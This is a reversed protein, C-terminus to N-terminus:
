RRGILKSKIRRFERTDRVPAPAVELTMAIEDIAAVRRATDPHDNSAASAGAGSREYLTEFFGAMDRPDYGAAAMLRAGELDAQTEAARNSRLSLANAAACGFMGATQGLDSGKGGTLADLVGLGIKALYA